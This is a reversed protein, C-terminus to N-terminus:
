PSSVLKTTMFFPVLKLKVHKARKIENPFKISKKMYNPPPSKVCHRLANKKATCQRIKDGGIQLVQKKANRFFTMVKTVILCPENELDMNMYKLTSHSSCFVPLIVSFVPLIVSFQMVSFQM